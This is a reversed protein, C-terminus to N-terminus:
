ILLVLTGFCLAATSVTSGALGVVLTRFQERRSRDLQMVVKDQVMDIRADTSDFRQEFNRVHAAFRDGLSRTHHEIEDIRNVFSTFRRDMTTFRANVAQFRADIRAELQRVETRSPPDDGESILSMLADTNETGIVKRLAGYLAGRLPEDITQM